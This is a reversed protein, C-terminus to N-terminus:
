LSDVITLGSTIEPMVGGATGFVVRWRELVTTGDAVDRDLDEKYDEPEEYWRLVSPAAEVVKHLQRVNAFEPPVLQDVARLCPGGNENGSAVTPGEDLRAELSAVRDRQFNYHLPARIPKSALRTCAFPIFQQSENRILGSWTFPVEYEFGESFCSV